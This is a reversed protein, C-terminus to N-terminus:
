FTMVFTLTGNDQVTWLAPSLYLFHVSNKPSVEITAAKDPSDEDFNITTRFDLSVYCWVQWDCRSIRSPELHSEKKNWVSHKNIGFPEPYIVGILVFHGLHNANHDPPYVQTGCKSAVLLLFVLVQLLCFFFGCNFRWKPFIVGLLTHM